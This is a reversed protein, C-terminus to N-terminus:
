DDTSLELLRLMELEAENEADGQRPEEGGKSYQAEFDDPLTLGSEQYISKVEAVGLQRMRPECPTPTFSGEIIPWELIKGNSAVKRAGPLTGSSSGLAKKRALKQMEVAYKNALDLQTETWIGIDDAIMVDIVGIPIFKAAADRGHQYLAPVKGVADFIATLGKTDDKDFFEETLDKQNEDGWVVLYNGLRGGPLSKISGAERMDFAKLVSGPVNKTVWEQEVSEWKSEPALVVGEEEVIFPVKYHALGTRAIAYDAYVAVCSACGSDDWQWYDQDEKGYPKAAMRMTERLDYFADRVANVLTDLPVNVAKVADDDVLEALSINKKHAYQGTSTGCAAGMEVAHDHIGQVRSQDKSNNRKGVKEAKGMLSVIDITAFAAKVDAETRGEPIPIEFSVSTRAEDNQQTTEDDM